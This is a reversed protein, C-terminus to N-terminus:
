PDGRSSGERRKKWFATQESTGDFGDGSREIVAPLKPSQPRALPRTNGVPARKREEKGQEGAGDFRDDPREIGGREDRYVRTKQRPRPLFNVIAARGLPKPHRRRPSRISSSSGTRGLWKEDFDTKLFIELTGGQPARDVRRKQWPRRPTRNAKAHALFGGRKGPVSEFTSGQSGGRARPEVEFKSFKLTHGSFSSPRDHVGLRVRAAPRGNPRASLPGDLGVM